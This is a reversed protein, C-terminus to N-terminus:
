IHSTTHKAIKKYALKLLPTDKNLTQGLSYQVINNILSDVTCVSSANLTKKWLLKGVSMSSNSPFPVYGGVM